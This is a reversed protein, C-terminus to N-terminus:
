WWWPKLRRDPLRYTLDTPRDGLKKAPVGGVLTFPAVDGSVVAGAAVVAGEGITTGPLITARASIWARDGISVPASEYAFDPSRWDHQGTWIHVNTSLNVDSGLTLGGRADLIAGNGISSRPGISLGTARRVEFGHSITATDHIRAGWWRLVVVRVAHIPIKGALVLTAMEADRRRRAAARKIQKLM